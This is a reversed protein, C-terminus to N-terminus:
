ISYGRIYSARPVTSISEATTRRSSASPQPLASSSLVDNDVRITAVPKFQYYQPTGLEHDFHSSRPSSKTQTVFSLSGNHPPPHVRKKEDTACSHRRTCEIESIVHEVANPKMAPGPPAISVEEEGVGIVSNSRHGQHLAIELKPAHVSSPTDEWTPDSNGV